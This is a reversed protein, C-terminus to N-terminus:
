VNKAGGRSLRNAAAVMLQRVHMPLGTDQSEQLLKLGLQLNSMGDIVSTAKLHANKEDRLVREMWIWAVGDVHHIPQEPDESFLFGYERGPMYGRFVMKAPGVRKCRKHEESVDIECGVLNLDLGLRPAVSHFGDRVAAETADIFSM